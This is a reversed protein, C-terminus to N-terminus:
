YELKICELHKGYYLFLLVPFYSTQFLKHMISNIEVLDPSCSPVIVDLIVVVYEPCYWTSNCGFYWMM